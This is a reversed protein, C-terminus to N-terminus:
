LDRVVYPRFRWSDKDTEVLLPTEATIHAAFTPAARKALEALLQRRTALAQEVDEDALADWEPHAAHVTHHLVDALFVIESGPPGIEVIAHGPRHGPAPRLRLEPALDADNAEVLLGAAELLRVSTTGANLPADADQIRAAAAAQAHVVVPTGPFAPDLHDPWSGSLVGGVHDFDLHTLVVRDIEKATAGARTLAAELDCSFGEHPWWSALIGAGADILVTESRSRALVVNIPSWMWEGMAPDPSVWSCPHRARGLELVDVQWRGARLSCDHQVPDSPIM